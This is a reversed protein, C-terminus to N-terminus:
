VVREGEPLFSSLTINDGGEDDSDAGIPFVLVGNSIPNRQRTYTHTREPLLASICMMETEKQAKKGRNVKRASLKACLVITSVMFITAVVALSALAILCPKVVGRTSCPQAETSAPSKIVECPAATTARTSETTSISMRKPVRPILVAAESTSVSSDTSPSETSSSSGTTDPFQSTSIHDNTNSHSQFTSSHETSNTTVKVSVPFSTSDVVPSAPNTAVSTMANVSPSSLNQTYHPAQTLIESSTTSSLESTHKTISIPQPMSVSATGSSAASATEFSTAPATVGAPTIPSQQDEAAKSTESLVTNHSPQAEASATSIPLMQLNSSRTIAALSSVAVSSATSRYSSDSRSSEVLTQQTEVTPLMTTQVTSAGVSVKAAKQPPNWTAAQMETENHHFTAKSPEDASQSNHTESISAGRAEMSFLVSMGWLLAVSMKMSLLM